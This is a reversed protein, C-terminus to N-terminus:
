KPCHDTTAHRPPTALILPFVYRPRSPTSRSSTKQRCLRNENSPTGNDEEDSSDWWNKMTHPQPETGTDANLTDNSPWPSAIANATRARAHWSSSSSSSRVRVLPGRRRRDEKTQRNVTTGRRSTQSKGIERGVLTALPRCRSRAPCLRLFRFAYRFCSAENQSGGM